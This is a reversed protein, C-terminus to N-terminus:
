HQKIRQRCFGLAPDSETLGNRFTLALETGRELYFFDSVIVHDKCRTEAIRVTRRHLFQVTRLGRSITETLARFSFLWFKGRLLNLGGLRVYKSISICYRIKHINM